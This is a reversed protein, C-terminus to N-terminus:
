VPGSTAGLWCPAYMRGHEANLASSIRSLVRPLRAPRVHTRPIPNRATHRVQPPGTWSHQATGWVPTSSPCCDGPWSPSPYVALLVRGTCTPRDRCTLSLPRAV